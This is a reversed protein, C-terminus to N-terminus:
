ENGAEEGEAQHKESDRVSREHDLKQQLRKKDRANQKLWWFIGAGTILAFISVYAWNIGQLQM